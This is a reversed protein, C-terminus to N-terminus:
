HQEALTASRAGSLEFTPADNAAEDYSVGTMRTLVEIKLPAIGFRYADGERAFHKPGVRRCPVRPVEGRMAAHHETLRTAAALREDPSSDRYSSPKPTGLAVIEVTM